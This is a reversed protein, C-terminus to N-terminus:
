NFVLHDQPGKTADSLQHVPEICDPSGALLESPSTGLMWVVYARTHCILWNSNPKTLPFKQVMNSSLAIRCDLFVKQTNITDYPKCNYDM